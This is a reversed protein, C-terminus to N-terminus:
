RLPRRFFTQAGVAGAEEFGLRRALALSRLNEPDILLTAATHETHRALHELLLEVARSAYGKGRKPAFLFYGVNVEGPGLWDHEPDRDFDIWGALEDDVWVCAFPAPEESGPGLWRRFEDDRAAALRQADGPEPARLTVVGDTAIM